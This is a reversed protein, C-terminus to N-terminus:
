LFIHILVAINKAVIVSLSLQHRLYDMKSYASTHTAVRASINGPSYKGEFFADYNEYFRGQKILRFPCLFDYLTPIQVVMM